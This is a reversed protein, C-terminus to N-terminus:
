IDEDVHEEDQREGGREGGVRSRKSRTGPLLQVESSAGWSEM